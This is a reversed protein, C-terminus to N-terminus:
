EREPIKDGAASIRAGYWRALPSASVGHLFVSLGITWTMRIIWAIWGCASRHSDLEEVEDAGQAGVV